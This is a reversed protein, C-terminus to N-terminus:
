SQTSKGDWLLIAASTAGRGWRIWDEDSVREQLFLDVTARLLPAAAPRGDIVAAALGDLLLDCPRPPQVQPAAQAARALDM